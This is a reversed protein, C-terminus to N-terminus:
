SSFSQAVPVSAVPENTFSQQMASERMSAEFADRTMVPVRITRIINTNTIVDHLGQRRPTFAIMIFGIGGLLLSLLKGFFRGTACGFSIRCLSMDTVKLGLLKKGFTAQMESSEMISFYLWPLVIQWMTVLSAGNTTVFEQGFAMAGLLGTSFCVVFYLAILIFADIIGAVARLWFGAPITVNNSNLNFTNM